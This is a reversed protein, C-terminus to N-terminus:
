GNDKRRPIRGTGRLPEVDAALVFRVGDFGVEIVRLRGDKMAISVAARKVGIIRAATAPRILHPAILRKGM